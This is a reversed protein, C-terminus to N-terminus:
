RRNHVICKSYSATIVSASSLKLRQKMAVHRLDKNIELERHKRPATSEAFDVPLSYHEM